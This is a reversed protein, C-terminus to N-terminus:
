PSGALVEPGQSDRASDRASDCRVGHMESYLPCDFAAEKMARYVTLLEASRRQAEEFVLDDIMKLKRAHEKWSLDQAHEHAVEAGTRATMIDDLLRARRRLDERPQQQYETELAKAKQRLEGERQVYAELRRHLQDPTTVLLEMPMESLYRHVTVTWERQFSLDDHSCYRRGRGLAQLEAGHTLFPEFLHIHRVARLDIGQNFSASALLVHAHAGRRNKVDNFARILRMVTERSQQTPGDPAVEAPTLLVYRRVPPEADRWGRMAEELTLKVYGLEDELAQAIALIGQSSGRREYFSSYVYHKQRPYKQLNELLAPLKSSFQGHELAEKDYHYLMNSYKRTTAYFKQLQDQRQLADYDQHKEYDKQYAEVYKEFQQMSMPVRTPPADILQPFAGVDAATDYFSVLGRISRKFSVIDSADVSILPKRPDRLMNLLQVIHEVTDGPTATLVVIKLNQSRPNDVDLLFHRLADHEARQNPLPKFISHVEDIILVADRLYEPDATTTARHVGLKHALQAFSVFDVRRKRFMAETEEMSKGEFRPFLRVANAHFNSPPNAALADVSTAYILRKKSVDDWYADLVGTSTVTNHTVSFDGLLYRRNGDLTFGYYAGRGRPEVRVPYTTVPRPPDRVDVVLTATPDSACPRVRYGLSRALFTIDGRIASSAHTFRGDDRLVHKLVQQRTIRSGCKIRQPLGEGRQLARDVSEMLLLLSLAGQQPQQAFTASVRYGRLERRHPAPLQLYTSVPIETVDPDDHARLSSSKRLCLIHESNVTYRVLDEDSVVDYLEDEGSALSLVRRPTSDDGMLLDGVRVDQVAKISGDHMMIETDVGHCKGSGTSHWCLIGRQGSNRDARLAMNIVLQHRMIAAKAKPNKVCQNERGAGSVRHPPAAAGNFYAYMYRGYEPSTMDSPWDAPLPFSM